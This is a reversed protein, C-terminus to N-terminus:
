TDLLYMTIKIEIQIKSYTGYMDCWVKHDTKLNILMADPTTTKLQSSVLMLVRERPICCILM